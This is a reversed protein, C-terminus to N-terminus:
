SHQILFSQYSNLKLIIWSSFRLGNESMEIMKIKGTDGSNTTNENHFLQNAVDVNSVRGESQNLVFCSM